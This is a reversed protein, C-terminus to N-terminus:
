LVDGAPVQGPWRAALAWRYQPSLAAWTAVHVRDATRIEQYAQLNLLWQQWYPDLGLQNISHPTHSVRGTRLAEEERLVARIQPWPRSPMVLVRAAPLTPPPEVVEDLLRVVGGLDADNIHMSTVHHTYHGLRAGLEAAAIEQMVTFAFVDGALGRWADNGRMFAAAHLVGDRLAFQLGLTCSVDPNAWSEVLEEPRFMTLVARKTGEESALLAIVRGWQSVGDAGPGFLKPGYATGTLRQGDVSHKALGPAYHGIMELDDRAALYWLTEAIHFPLKQRRTRLWLQRERPDTLRFTVGLCERSANGRPASQHEYCAYVHRLVAVYASTFDPFAEPTLM